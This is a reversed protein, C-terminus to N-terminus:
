SNLSGFQGLIRNLGLEGSLSLKFLLMPGM